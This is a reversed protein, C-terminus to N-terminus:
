WEYGLKVAYTTDDEVTGPAPNNDWDFDIQGSAVIGSRIPLKIGSESQFLYADTDDSPVNLDHNHFLRFADGYFKQDYDMAWTVVLSEDTGSNEFKEHLYGPGLVFKLNLNDSEYPQYGLGANVITRLDLRDIDDQEFGIASEWFWKDAFFYDHTLDLSRNDVTIQNNDEERNYDAEIKARHKDWRAKASADATIGNNDSNGTKLDAGLNIDGSWEA